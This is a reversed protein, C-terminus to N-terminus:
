SYRYPVGAKEMAAAYKNYADVVKRTRPSVSVLQIVRERTQNKESYRSTKKLGGM